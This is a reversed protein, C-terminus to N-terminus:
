EQYIGKFYVVATKIEGVDSRFPQREVKNSDATAYTYDPLYHGYNANGVNKDSRMNAFSVRDGATPSTMITCFKSYKSVDIENVAYAIRENYRSGSSQVNLEISSKNFQAGELLTHHPDYWGDASPNSRWGGTIDECQNGFWYLAGEKM